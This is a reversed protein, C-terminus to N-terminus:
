FLVTNPKQHLVLIPARYCAPHAVFCQSIMSVAQVQGTGVRLNKFRVAFQNLLNRTIGMVRLPREIIM